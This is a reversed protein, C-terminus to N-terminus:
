TYAKQNQLYIKELTALQDQSNVGAAEYIDELIVSQINKKQDYLIKVVDTLYYENQQNINTIKDIANFLDKSHFCYIGTNIENISRIQPSADKYEVIEAVNNKNDRVIRGYKEPDTLIMTLITCAAKTSNHKELMLKLTEATLLPVDGCLVLISGDFDRYFDKAVKVADGSGNQNIQLLFHIKPDPTLSDIVEDAMYGVIISITDPDIKLSTDVVRQLITKGALQFCVKPTQSNMRTGKGAALIIVATHDSL